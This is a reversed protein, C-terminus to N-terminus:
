PNGFLSGFISAGVVEMDNELQKEGFNDDEDRPRDVERGKNPESAKSKFGRFGWILIDPKDM